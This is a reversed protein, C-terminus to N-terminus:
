KETESEADNEVIILEDESNSGKAEKKAKIMAALPKAIYKYALGGVLALGGGVAMGIGFNKESGVPIIEEAVEMVEDNTLIEQADM